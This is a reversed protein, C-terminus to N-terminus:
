GVLVGYPNDISLIDEPASKEEIRSVDKPAEDQKSALIEEIVIPGDHIIIPAEM